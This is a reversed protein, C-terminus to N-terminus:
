GASFLLATLFKRIPDAFFVGLGTLLFAIVGGITKLRIKDHELADIRDHDESSQNELETVKARLSGLEEWCEPTPM